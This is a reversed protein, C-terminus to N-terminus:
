RATTSGAVIEARAARSAATTVTPTSTWATLLRRCPSPHTSRTSYTCCYYSSQCYDHSNNMNRYGRAIVIRRCVARLGRDARADLQLFVATPARGRDVGDPM